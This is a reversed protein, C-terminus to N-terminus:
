KLDRSKGTYGCTGTRPSNLLPLLSDQDVKKRCKECVDRNEFSDVFVAINKRCLNCILKPKENRALVVSQKATKINVAGKNSILLETTSGFDYEYWVSKGTPIVDEIKAEDMGKEGEEEPDSIYMGFDTKFASLHGCCELWTDRLLKDLVELTLNESVAVYMWYHDAGSVSLFLMSRGNPDSFCKELHTKMARKSFSQNCKGCMGNPIEAAQIM